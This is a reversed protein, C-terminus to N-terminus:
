GANGEVARIELLENKEDVNMVSRINLIRDQWRIRQSTDVGNRYRILIRFNQIYEIQGNTFIENGSAYNGATGAGLPIIEAWLEIIDEWSRIYGGQTDPTQAEQQLTVRHRLRSATHKTRNIM